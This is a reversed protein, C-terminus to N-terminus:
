KKSDWNCNNFTKQPNRPSGYRYSLSCRKGKKCRRLPGTRTEFHLHPHQKHANGTNGVTGINQGKRVSQGASVSRRHLHLYRTISGNKHQLVILGGTVAAKTSVIVKGAWPAKVATGRPAYWDVGTHAGPKGKRSAGYHGLGGDNKLGYCKAVPFVGGKIKISKGGSKQPKVVKIAKCKTNKKNKSLACYETLNRCKKSISGRGYKFCSRKETNPKNKKRKVKNKKVAKKRKCAKKRKNKWLRCYQELDRCKKTLRNRGYPGCKDKKNNRRGSSLESAVEREKPIFQGDKDSFTSENNLIIKEGDKQFDDIDSIKQKDGLSTNSWVPKGTKLDLKSIQGVATLYVFKEDILPLDLNFTGVDHRWVEKGKKKDFAVVRSGATEHDAFQYYFLVTNKFEKVKHSELEYGKPINTSFSIEKKGFSLSATTGSENISATLSKAQANLGTLILIALATSKIANPKM